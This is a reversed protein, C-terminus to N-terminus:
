NLLSINDSWNNWKFDYTGENIKTIDYAFFINCQM